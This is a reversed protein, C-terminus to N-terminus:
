FLLVFNRKQLPINGTISVSSPLNVTQKGDANVFPEKFKKVVVAKSIFLDYQDIQGNKLRPGALSVIVSGDQDTYRFPKQVRMSM